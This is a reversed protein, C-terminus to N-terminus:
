WTLSMVYSKFLVIRVAWNAFFNLLAFFVNASCGDCETMRVFSYREAQMSPRTLRALSLVKWTVILCVRRLQVSATRVAWAARLRYIYIYTYISCQPPSTSAATTRKVLASVRLRLRRHFVHFIGFRHSVRDRQRRARFRLSGMTDAVLVPFMVTVAKRFPQCLTLDISYGISTCLSNSSQSPQILGFDVVDCVCFGPFLFFVRDKASM